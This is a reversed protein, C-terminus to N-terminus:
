EQELENLNFTIEFEEQTVRYGPPFPPLPDSQEIAKLVSQNFMANSSRKTFSSKLITGDSKARVVVVAELDEKSRPNILAVPYAWKGKIWDEVESRYIDIAMGTVSSGTAFGKGSAGKSQTELRSIADGLHDKEESRVKKELQALAQDIRRATDQESAEVKNKINAVAKDLLKAPPVKPKETKKKQTTVTRKAIVVPKDEQKPVSIRKAPRTEETIPRTKGPEAKPSGKVKMPERNPLEVLDVEYVAGRIRRTPMSDPVFLVLSFVSLHFLLSLVLMTNWKPEMPKVPSFQTWAADVPMM